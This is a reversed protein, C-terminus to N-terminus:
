IRYKSRLEIKRRLALYDCAFIHDNACCHWNWLVITNSRTIAHLTNADNELDTDKVTAHGRIPKLFENVGWVRSARQLLTACPRVDSTNSDPVLKSDFTPM